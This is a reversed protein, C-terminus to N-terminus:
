SAVVPRGNPDANPPAFQPVISARMDPNENMRARKSPPPNGTLYAAEQHQHKEGGLDAVAQAASAQLQNVQNVNVASSGM